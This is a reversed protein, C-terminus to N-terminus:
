EREEFDVLKKAYFGSCSSYCFNWGLIRFLDSQKDPIDREDTNVTINQLYKMELLFLAALVYLVNRQCGDKINAVRGHKINTFAHWWFLSQGPQDNNWSYFPKIVMGNMLIQVEQNLIDPYDEIVARYYQTIREAASSSCFVKFFSDLESGIMQILGAYENSYAMANDASLAVYNLTHIFKEELMLYYAWYDRLFQERNM